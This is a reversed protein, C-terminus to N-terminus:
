KGKKRQGSFRGAKSKSREYPDRRYIYLRGDNGKSVRANWGSKRHRAAASKATTKNSYSGSIVAYTKGGFKKRQPRTKVKKGM